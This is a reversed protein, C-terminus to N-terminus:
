MKKLCFAEKTGQAPSNYCSSSLAFDACSLDAYTIYTRNVKKISMLQIRLKGCKGNKKGIKATIRMEEEHPNM